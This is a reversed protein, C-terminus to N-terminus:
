KWLKSIAGYVLAVIALAGAIYSGWIAAESLKIDNYFAGAEYGAKQIGITSPAIGDAMAWSIVCLVVIGVIAIGPMIFSKKDYMGDSVIKYLAFLIALAACLGALIECIYMILGGWQTAAESVGAIKVDGTQGELADMAAQMQPAESPLVFFLVSLLAAIGLVAWGTIKLIKELM